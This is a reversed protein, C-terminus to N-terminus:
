ISSQFAAVQVKAGKKQLVLKRIEATASAREDAQEGLPQDRVDPVRTIPDTETLTSPV